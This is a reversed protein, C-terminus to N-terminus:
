ASENHLRSNHGKALTGDVRVTKQPNKKCLYVPFDISSGEDLRANHGKAFAENIWIM